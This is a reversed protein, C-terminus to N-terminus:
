RIKENYKKYIFMSNSRELYNIKKILPFSMSHLNLPNNVIIKFQKNIPILIEYLHILLIM